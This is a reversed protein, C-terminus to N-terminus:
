ASEAPAHQAHALSAVFMVGGVANGVLTPAFYMALYEVFSREGRFVVYLCEASGAVIHTFSGIAVLYSVVV